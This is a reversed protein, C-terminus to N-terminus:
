LQESFYKEAAQLFKYRADELAKNAREQFNRFEVIKKPEPGYQGFSVAGKSSSGQLMQGAIINYKEALDLNRRAKVLAFFNPNEANMLSSIGLVLVLLLKKM